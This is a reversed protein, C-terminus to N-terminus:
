IRREASTKVGYWRQASPERTLDWARAFFQSVARNTVLQRSDPLDSLRVSGIRRSPREPGCGLNPPVGGRRPLSPTPLRRSVDTLHIPDLGARQVARAEARATPSVFGWRMPGV